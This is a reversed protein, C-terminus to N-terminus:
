AARPRRLTRLVLMSGVLILVAAVAPLPFGGRRGTAALARTALVTTTTTAPPPNTFVTTPATTTTSPATTTTSAQSTTTTTAQSTTTTGQTTTTSGTTTTTPETTSTSSSTTTPETSTTTTPVCDAYAGNSFSVLTTRRGDGRLSESYFSGAPGVVSLPVGVVADIQFSCDHGLASLDPLTLSLSGGGDQDSLTTVNYAATPQNASPNFFPQPADKVVLSVASGVCAPDVAFWMMTIVDGASFPPLDQLTAVPQSVNGNLVFEVAFQQTEGLGTRDCGAGLLAQPTDPYNEYDTVLPPLVQGGAGGSLGVLVGAAVLLGGLAAGFRRMVRM